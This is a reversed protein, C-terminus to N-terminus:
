ERVSVRVLLFASLSLVTAVSAWVVNEHLLVAFTAAIGAISQAVFTVFAATLPIAPVLWLVITLVRALLRSAPGPEFTRFAGKLVNM